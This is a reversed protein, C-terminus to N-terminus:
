EPMPSPVVPDPSKPTATEPPIATVPTTADTAMPVPAGLQSTPLSTQNDPRYPSVITSPSNTDPSAYSAASNQTQPYSPTGAPPEYNSYGAVPAASQTPAYAPAVTFPSVTIPSVTAPVNATQARWIQWGGVSVLIGGALILGLVAGLILSTGQEPRPAVSTHINM